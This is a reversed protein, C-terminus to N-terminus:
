FLARWASLDVQSAYRIVDGAPAEIKIVDAGMEGLQQTAYPGMLVNAQDVITIAALPGAM